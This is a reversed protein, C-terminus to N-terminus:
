ETQKNQVHEQMTSGITEDMKLVYYDQYHCKMQYLSATEMTCGFKLPEFVKPVMFIHKLRATWALSHKDYHWTLHCLLSIKKIKKLM